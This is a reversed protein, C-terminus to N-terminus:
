VYRVQYYTITVSIIMLVVSLLTEITSDTYRDESYKRFIVIGVPLVVSNICAIMLAPIISGIMQLNEFQGASSPPNLIFFAIFNIGVLVIFLTKM